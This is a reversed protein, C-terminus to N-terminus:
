KGGLFMKLLRFLYILFFCLLFVGCFARCGMTFAEYGSKPTYNLDVGMYLMLDIVANNEIVPITTPEGTTVIATTTIETVTEQVTTTTETEQETEQIETTTEETEQEMIEQENM